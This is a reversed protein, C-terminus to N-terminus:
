KLKDEFREIGSIQNLYFVPDIAGATNPKKENEAYFIKENAGKRSNFDNIRAQRESSLKSFDKIQINLHLHPGEARGTRGVEGMKSSKPDTNNQSNHAYIAETNKDSSTLISYNGLDSGGTFGQPLNEAPVCPACSGSYYNVGTMKFIGRGEYVPESVASKSGSFIKYTTTGSLDLSKHGNVFKSGGNSKMYGGSTEQVPNDALFHIKVELREKEIVKGKNKPDDINEKDASNLSHPLMELYKNHDKILNGKLIETEKNVKALKKESETNFFGLNDSIWKHVKNKAAKEANATKELEAKEKKLKAFKDLGEKLATETKEFDDKEQKTYNHVLVGQEGVFYNHTGEVEFNYVTIDPSPLPEVSVVSAPNGRSNLLSNGRHLDKAEVWSGKRESKVTNNNIILMASLSAAIRQESNAIREVGSGTVYFPHNWTTKLVSGDSLIIKYLLKVNHRYLETVKGTLFKRGSEDYTRVLDGVKIQEIPKLGEATHVLTGAVFCTRPHFNGNEDVMGASSTINGSGATFMNTFDNGVGSLFSNVSGLFGDAFSTGHMENTQQANPDKKSLKSLLGAVEDPSVKRFDIDGNEDRPLSNVANMLAADDPDNENLDARGAIEPLTKNLAATNRDYTVDDFADQAVALNGASWSMSDTEFGQASNRGLSLSTGLQDTISLGSSVGTRDFNVSLGLARRDKQDARQRPANEDPRDTPYSYNVSGSFGAISNYNLGASLGSLPSASLEKFRDSPNGNADSFM